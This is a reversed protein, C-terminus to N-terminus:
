NSTSKKQPIEKKKNVYVVKSTNKWFSFVVVNYQIVYPASLINTFLNLNFKKKHPPLTNKLM